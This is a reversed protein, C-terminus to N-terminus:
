VLLAGKGASSLGEPCPSMTEVPLHQVCVLCPSLPHSLVCLDGKGVSVELLLAPFLEPPLSGRLQWPAPELEAATQLTKM